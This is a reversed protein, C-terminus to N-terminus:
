LAHSPQKRREHAGLRHHRKRVAHFGHQGQYKREAHGDVLSAGADHSVNLPASGDWVFFDTASAVSLFGGQPLPTTASWTQGGDHSVYFETGNTNAFLLVPLVAENAGFFVPLNAGTMAGSYAAPVSVNQHAWTM